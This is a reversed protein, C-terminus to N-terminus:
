FSTYPYVVGAYARNKLEYICYFDFESCFLGAKEIMPFDTVNNRDMWNYCSSMALHRSRERCVM